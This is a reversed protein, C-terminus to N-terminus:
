IRRKLIEECLQIGIEHALDPTVEGPLFAQILHRALVNTKFQM